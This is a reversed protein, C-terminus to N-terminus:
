HDKEIVPFIGDKEFLRKMIEALSSDMTNETLTFLVTGNWTLMAASPTASSGAYMDPRIFAVKSEMGEPVELVGPNSFYATYPYQGTFPYVLSVLIQKLALPIPTIAQALLATNGAAALIERRGSCIDFQERIKRYMGAEGDIECLRLSPVFFMSANRVTKTELYKRLNVPIQVSIRGSSRHSCEKLALFLCGLVYVTVTTGHKKAAAKLIDAPFRFYISQSPTEKEMSLDPHISFPHFESHTRGPRNKIFINELEAEDAEEEIRISNQGHSVPTDLLRFYERLLADLFLMGGYGDTLVHSFEAAIEKESWFVWLNQYPMSSATSLSCPPAKKESVAFRHPQLILAHWFRGPVVSCAFTPFRRIVFTLAIQLLPVVPPEFLHATLRFVMRQKGKGLFPYIRASSELEFVRRNEKRYFTGLRNPDLLELAKEQPFGREEYFSLADEFDKLIMSKDPEPLTVATHLDQRWQELRIDSTRNMLSYIKDYICKVMNLDMLFAVTLLYM